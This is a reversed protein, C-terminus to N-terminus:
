AECVIVEPSEGMASVVALMGFEGGSGLPLGGSIARTTM